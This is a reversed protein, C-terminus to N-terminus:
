RGKPHKREVPKAPPPETIEAWGNSVLRQAEEATVGCAMGPAIM